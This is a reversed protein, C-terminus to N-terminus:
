KVYAQIDRVVASELFSTESIIRFPIALQTLERQMKEM